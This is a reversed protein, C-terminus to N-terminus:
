LLQSIFFYTKCNHKSTNEKASLTSRNSVKVLRTEFVILSALGARKLRYRTKDIYSLADKFDVPSEGVLVAGGEQKYEVVRCTLPAYTATGM